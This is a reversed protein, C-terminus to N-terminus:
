MLILGVCGVMGLLLIVAFFIIVTGKGGVVLGPVAAKATLKVTDSMKEVAAKIASGTRSFLDKTTNMWNSAM